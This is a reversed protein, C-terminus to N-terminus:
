GFRVISYYEFNPPFPSSNPPFPLPIKLFFICVVCIADWFSDICSTEDLNSLPFLNLILPIKSSFFICVVCIADWFSDLYSTEYLDILPFTNLILPFIPSPRVLPGVSESVSQHPSGCQLTFVNLKFSAQKLTKEQGFHNPWFRYHTPGFRRAGLYALNTGLTNFYLIGDPNVFCGRLDSVTQCMQRNLCRCYEIIIFVHRNFQM